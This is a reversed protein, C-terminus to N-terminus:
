KRGIHRVPKEATAEIAVDDDMMPKAYYDDYWYGYRYRSWNPSSTHILNFEVVNDGDRLCGRFHNDTLRYDFIELTVCEEVFYVYIVRDRVTWEIHNAVYDWPANSYYDVWYGMGSSYTYPDRAFDIMSYTAEYTRGNYVSTVYMDGEWTGELTYAISLDDDCSVFAASVFAFMLAMLYFRFKKM